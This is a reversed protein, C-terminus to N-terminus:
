AARRGAVFSVLRWTPLFGGSIECALAQLDDFSDRHAPAPTEIWPIDGCPSLLEFRGHVLEGDLWATARWCGRTISAETM